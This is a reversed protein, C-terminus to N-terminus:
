FYIINILKKNLLYYYHPNPIPSRSGNIFRNRLDPTGKTGDCITWNEPIKDIEGYWAIIMGRSFKKNILKTQRNIDGILSEIKEKLDDIKSKTNSNNKKNVMLLIIGFIIILFIIILYLICVHNCKSPPSHSDDMKNYILPKGNADLDELESGQDNKKEEPKM